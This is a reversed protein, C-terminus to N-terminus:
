AAFVAVPAGDALRLWVAEGITHREEAHSRGATLKIQVGDALQLEYVVSPGLPLVMEVTAAIAGEGRAGFRLHEPRVALIVRGNRACPQAAPLALRGGVDLELEFGPARAALRGNLLNATGVFGAVFLSQPRDYIDEPTAFQEVRGAALVAIRDAMSLAEEQDHTVMVTTIDLERQLRKVEIQMDLRLNKDLAGFPEDLLLVKPSVALTRALAVRQQQGGSLERPFRTAYSEMRVLALMKAVTAAIEGASAGRARLGYAVNTAVTMHPFLAYNQFVIGAGRENPPLADVTESGIVVHGETQRLLGAIIRLLTTKGCGSPGLLAVLEGPEIALSVDDVATTGGYRHSVHELSVGVGTLVPTLNDM